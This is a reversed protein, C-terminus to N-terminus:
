VRYTYMCFYLDVGQKVTNCIVQHQFNGSFYPSQQRQLDAGTFTFDSTSM